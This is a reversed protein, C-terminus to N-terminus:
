MTVECFNYDNSLNVVGNIDNTVLPNLLYSSGNFSVVLSPVEGCSSSLLMRSKDVSMVVLDSYTELYSIIYKIIELAKSNVQSVFRKLQEIDSDENGFFSKLYEDLNSDVNILSNVYLDKTFDLNLICDSIEDIGRVSSVAEISSGCLLNFVVPLLKNISYVVVFGKSKKSVNMAELNFHTDLNAGLFYSHSRDNSLAYKISSVYIEDKSNFASDMIVEKPISDSLMFDYGRILSFRRESKNILKKESFLNIQLNM